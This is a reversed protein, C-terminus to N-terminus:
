RDAEVASSTDLVKGDVIVKTKKAKPVDTRSRSNSRAGECLQRAGRGRQDAVLGTTTTTPTTTTTTPTSIGPGAGAGRDTPRDAQAARRRRLDQDRGRHGTARRRRPPGPSASSEPRTPPATARPATQSVTRVSRGEDFDAATAKKGQNFRLKAKPPTPAPTPSRCRTPPGARSRPRRRARQADGRLRLPARRGKPDAAAIGVGSAGGGRSGCRGVCDGFADKSRPESACFRASRSARLGPRAAGSASASAPASAAPPMTRGPRPSASSRPRTATSPTRRRRGAPAAAREGPSRGRSRRAPM